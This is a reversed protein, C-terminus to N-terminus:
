RSREAVMSGAAAAAWIGLLTSIVVALGIGLWSHRLLAGYRMAGVSSPVFYLPLYRLLAHAARDVRVDVRRCMAFIALLVVMGLVAASFPVHAFALAYSCAWGFAVFGALAVVIGFVKM